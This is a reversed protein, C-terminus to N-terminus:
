TLTTKSQRVTSKVKLMKFIKNQQRRAQMTESPFEM